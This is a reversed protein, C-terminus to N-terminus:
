RARPPSSTPLHAGRQPPRPCIASSRQTLLPVNEPRATVSAKKETVEVPPIDRQGRIKAVRTGRWRIFSFGGASGFAGEVLLLRPPLSSAGCKARGELRGKRRQMTSM